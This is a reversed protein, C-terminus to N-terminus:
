ASVSSAAGPLTLEALVAHGYVGRKVFGGHRVEAAHRRPGVAVRGWAKVAVERRRAPLHQLRSAASRRALERAVSLDPPEFSIRRLTLGAREALTGLQAASWRTVHHPPCDLPEIDARYSRDRNPVSVFVRGTSRVCAAAARVVGVPDDVHELLHFATVVDFNGAERRSVDDFAAVHAEVGADRLQRIATANHDVGATRGPRKGLGRLFAGEGCGLDLLDDGPTVRAAVVDFEWRHPNYPMAGMLEAYFDPSGPELPDFRELGCEDCRILRTGEVPTSARRTTPGISAGWESRLSEFIEDYAYDGVLRGAATGCLPCSSAIMM